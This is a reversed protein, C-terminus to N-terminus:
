AVAPAAEPAGAAYAAPAGADCEDSDESFEIAVAMDKLLQLDTEMSGEGRELRVAAAVMSDCRDQAFGFVTHPLRQDIEGALRNLLMTYRRVDDDRKGALTERIRDIAWHVGAIDRRIKRDKLEMRAESVRSMLEHRAMGESILKVPNPVMLHQTDGRPAARREPGVYDGTVVWPSRHRLFFELRKQLTGLEIRKLVISDFGANITKSVNGDDTDGVLGAVVPFPNAGLKNQRMKQVIACIDDTMTFLDCLILDAEGTVLADQLAELRGTEVIEVFGIHRLMGFVASRINSDPEFVVTRVNRTSM